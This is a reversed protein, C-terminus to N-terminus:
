QSVFTVIGNKIVIIVQVKTTQWHEKVPVPENLPMGTNTWFIRLLRLKHVSDLARTM